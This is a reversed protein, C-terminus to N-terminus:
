QGMHHITLTVTTGERVVAGSPPDVTMRSQAACVATLGCSRLVTDDAVDLSAQELAQRVEGYDAAYDVGPLVPVTTWGEPLVSVSSAISGRVAPPGSIQLVVGESPLQLITNTFNKVCLANRPCRQDSVSGTLGGVEISRENGLGLELLQPDVTSIDRLWPEGIGSCSPVPPGLRPVAPEVEPAASALCGDSGGGRWSEPVAVVVRGVGVYRTGEPPVPESAVERTADDDRPGLVASGGVVALVATAAAISVAGRRRRRMRGGGDVLAPLSASGTPIEDWLRELTDTM